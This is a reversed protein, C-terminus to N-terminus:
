QVACRQRVAATVVAGAHRRCLRRRVGADRQNGHRRHAHADRTDTRAASDTVAVRLDYSGAASPTGSLTGDTALLLGEPLLGGALSWSYPSTGGAAQLQLSFATDVVASDLATTTIALPDTTAITQVRLDDTDFEHGGNVNVQSFSSFASDTASVSLAAGAARRISVALM